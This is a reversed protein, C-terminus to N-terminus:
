RGGDPSGVAAGAEDIATHIAKEVAGWRVYGDLTRYRDSAEGWADMGSVAERLVESVRSKLHVVPQVPVSEATSQGTAADGAAARSGSTPFWRGKEYRVLGRRRCARLQRVTYEVPTYTGGHRRKNIERATVGGDDHPPVRFASLVREPSALWEDPSCPEGFCLLTGNSEASEM